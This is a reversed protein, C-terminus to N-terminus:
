ILGFQSSMSRFLIYFLALCSFLYLYFRVIIINLTCHMLSHLTRFFVYVWGALVYSSNVQQTVFLYVCLAYFIVPMEFLNKLNDSPNNVSPPSLRELEGRKTFQQPQIKLSNIFTIRKFYMYVWVVVTLLITGFFPGFILQQQSQATM